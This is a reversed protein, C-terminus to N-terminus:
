ASVTGTGPRKAVVVAGEGVDLLLKGLTQEDVPDGAILVTGHTETDEANLQMGSEAWSLLARPVYVASGDISAIGQVILHDGDTDYLAPFGSDESGCGLLRLMPM